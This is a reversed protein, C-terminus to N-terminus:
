LRECNCWVKIKLSTRKRQWKELPQLQLNGLASSLEMETNPRSASYTEQLVKFLFSFYQHSERKRSKRIM